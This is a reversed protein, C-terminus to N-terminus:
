YHYEKGKEISAARYIQELLIVRAMEHTFTLPSLSIQFYKKKLELSFGLSGAIVFVIKQHSLQYIKQSFSVSDFLKGEESLLFVQGEVLNIAKEIKEAEETKAKEKNHKAFSSFALEKIELNIYPKLRKLYEFEAERWYSTKLKGITIILIDLM